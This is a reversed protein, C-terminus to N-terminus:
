MYGALWDTPSLTGFPGWKMGTALEANSLVMHKKNNTASFSTGEQVSPTKRPPHCHSQTRSSIPPISLSTSESYAVGIGIGIGTCYLRDVCICVHAM